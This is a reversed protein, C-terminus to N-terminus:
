PKEKRHKRCKYGVQYTPWGCDRCPLTCFRIEQGRLSPLYRELLTTKGDKKSM